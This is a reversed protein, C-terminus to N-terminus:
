LGANKLRNAHNRMLTLPSTEFLSVLGLVQNNVDLHNMFYDDRIVRGFHSSCRGTVGDNAGPIALSTIGFLADSIDVGTTFQATGSWSYLRITNGDITIQSPGEGCHTAPMGAPFLANFAASGPANFEALMANIDSSDATNDSLLNVLNGVANALAEFGVGTLSGEPAVGTVIDALQSGRHPTHLTTVSAVLDPRVNMVYRSTIGGQSHGILNFRTISGGSAARIADLQEILREGRRASSDFANIKPIFVRAGEDELAGPIRYWYDVGAITDFAFIGPVLVIPYRTAAEDSSGWLWDFLGAHAPFTFSCALAVLAGKLWSKM